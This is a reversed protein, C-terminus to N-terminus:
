GSCARQITVGLIALIWVATMPSFPPRRTPLDEESIEEVLPPLHGADPDARTALAGAAVAHVPQRATRGGCHVCTKTGM